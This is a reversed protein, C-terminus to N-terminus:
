AMSTEEDDDALGELRHFQEIMASIVDLSAKSLSAARTLV